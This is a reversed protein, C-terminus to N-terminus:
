GDLVKRVTALLEASNFPKALYGSAGGRLARRVAGNAAYGSAIIVKAKPNIKLVGELAKYGGIGPMGLDLIVLDLLNKKEEYVELAEEGSKATFINYGAQNLIQKGLDRLQYEDDVLLITENGMQLEQDSLLADASTWINEDEYAPFYIKFTTGLGVESYCSIQGHFAKVIGFVTSLGLGTGAGVDKTTYFPDFIQEKTRKDMGKGTDSVQLLVYRGPKVELHKSCYEGTLTINQTDITLRGGDPMAHQANAALNLMIQELQNANARIPMLDTALNTEISIMKPLTRGLLEATRELEKNLDLPTLEVEVKRSFTLIQRVLDRAREGARLIHQLEGTYDRQGQSKRMAMEAFGIVVGLINNFDHAIGGALTGIAEMKQAQRLQAELKEKDAEQKIKQTIDQFFVLAGNEGQYHIPVSLVEVDFPSGEFNVFQYKLALLNRKEQNVLRTREKVLEHFPPAVLELVPKGLLDKKYQTGFADMAMNNAYAINGRTQIVIGVPANDVLTRFQTESHLLAEETRKRESIDIYVGLLCKQNDYFIPDASWLITRDQNQLRIQLEVNRLKGQQRFLDLMRPRERSAESWLGLEISTRGLCEQRSLGCQKLFTNNAELIRGEKVTTITISVPSTFFVKSFKEESLRLAEEAQKRKTIDFVTSHLLTRGQQTLPSSYVEVDRIENSALRHKAQFSLTKRTEVRSLLGSIKEPDATNIEFIKKATIEQHSYGYFDCASQNADVISSDDPNVLLHVLRDAHFMQRYLKESARLAEESRQRELEKERKLRRHVLLLLIVLAQLVLLGTGVLVWHWYLDLFSYHRYRIEAGAILPNDILGWRKLQRWDFVVHDPTKLPPIYDPNEGALIRLATKAVAHGIVEASAMRGGLVGHGMMTDTLGFVPSNAADSIMQGAKNPAFRKGESDKAFGLYLILSNPPLRSVYDLTKEMTNGSLYTVQPSPGLGALQKLAVNRLYVSLPSSGTVVVVERTAPLLKLAFKVASLMDLEFYVSTMRRNRPPNKIADSGSGSIIQPIGPFLEQGYDILFDSAIDNFAIVLDLAQHSYKVRLLKKLAAKYGLTDGSGLDLHEESIEFPGIRSSDMTDRFSRRIIIEWPISSSFSNLILIKKPAPQREAWAMPTAMLLIAVLSALFIKGLHM